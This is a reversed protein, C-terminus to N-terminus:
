KNQNILFKGGNVYVIAGLVPLISMLTSITFGAFNERSANIGSLLILAYILVVGINKKYILLYSYITKWFIGWIFMGIIIAPIHLNLYLDGIITPTLATGELPSYEYVTKTLFWELSVIPKSPWLARPIWAISLYLYYLGYQLGMKEPMSQIIKVLGEFSVFLETTMKYIDIYTSKYSINSFIDGGYKRFCDLIFLLIFLVPTGVIVHIIKIEKRLYYHRMIIPVALLIIIPTRMGQSISIIVAMLFYIFLTLKSVNKKSIMSNAYIMFFGASIFSFAVNVWFLGMKRLHEHQIQASHTIHFVVGKGTIFYMFFLLISISAIALMVVILNLRFKKWNTGLSPMYKSIITGLKAYYGTYFSILGILAYFIALSFAETKVMPASSFILSIPKIVFLLFYFAVFPYVPEFVDISKRIMIARFIPIICIFFLVFLLHESCVM